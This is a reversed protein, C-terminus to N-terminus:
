GERIVTVEIRENHRSDSQEIPRSSGYGYTRLQVKPIGHEILYQKILLARDLSVQVNDDENNFSNVHGSLEIYLNPKKSLENVLKDLGVTSQIKTNEDNFSISSLDIKEAAHLRQPVYIGDKFLPIRLTNRISVVDGFVERFPLLTMRMAAESDVDGGITLIGDTLTLEAGNHVYSFSDLVHLYRDVWRPRTIEPKVTLLSTNIKEGIVEQTSDVLNQKTIESDVNGVFIWQGSDYRLTFRGKLQPEVSAEIDTSAETEKLKPKVGIQAIVERVGEVGKVLTIVKEQSGETFVNGKIVADRGDFSVKGNFLRSVTLLRNARQSLDDEIPKQKLLISITTLGAVLSVILLILLLFSSQKEQVVDTM